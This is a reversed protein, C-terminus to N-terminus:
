SSVSFDAQYGPGHGVEIALLCPDSDRGAIPSEQPIM